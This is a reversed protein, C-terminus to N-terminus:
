SESKSSLTKLTTDLNQKHIPKTVNASVFNHFVISASPHYYKSVKVMKFAKNSSIRSTLANCKTNWWQREMKQFFVAGMLDHLGLPIDKLDFSTYNPEFVQLYLYKDILLRTILM